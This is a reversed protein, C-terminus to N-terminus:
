HEYVWQAFLPTLDCSCHREAVQKLGETTAIGWKFTEYYDRLFATFTKQGMRKALADVFLPGRGYVIAGYEKGEYARVPMGIPIDADDVEGWRGYLYGRYGEAGNSGYLDQYYLLTAYQALAEDLWPEDLQDNGIVSYFWQHGVEHAMTGELYEPSYETDPPYLRQAM